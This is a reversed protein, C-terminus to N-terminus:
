VLEVKEKKFGWLVELFPNIGELGVLVENVWNQFIAQAVILIHKKITISSFPVKSYCHHPRRTQLDKKAEHRIHRGNQLSDIYCV